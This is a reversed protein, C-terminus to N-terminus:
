FAGIVYCDPVLELALKYLNKEAIVLASINGGSEAFSCCCPAIPAQNTIQIDCANNKKFDVHM